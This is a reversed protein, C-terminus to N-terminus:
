GAGFKHIVTICYFSFSTLVMFCPTFVMSIVIIWGFSKTFVEFCSTGGKAEM